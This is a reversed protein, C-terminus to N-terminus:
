DQTRRLVVPGLVALEWPLGLALGLGVGLVYDWLIRLTSM